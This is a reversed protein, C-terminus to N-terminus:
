RTTGAKKRGEQLLDVFFSFHKLMNLLRIGYNGKFFTPGICTCKVDINSTKKAKAATKQCFPCLQQTQM